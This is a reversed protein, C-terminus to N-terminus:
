LAVPVFPGCVAGHASHARLHHTSPAHVACPPRTALVYIAVPLRTAPAAGKLLEAGSPAPPPPPACWGGQGGPGGVAFAQALNEEPGEKVRQPSQAGM